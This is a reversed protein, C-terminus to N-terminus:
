MANMAQVIAQLMNLVNPDAGAAPAPASAQNQVLGQLQQTQAQQAQVLARLEEIQAEM